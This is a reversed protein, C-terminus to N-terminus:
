TMHKVTYTPPKVILKLKKENNVEFKMNYKYVEM